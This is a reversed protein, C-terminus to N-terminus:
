YDLQGDSLKAGGQEQALTLRKQHDSLGCCSLESSVGFYSSYMLLIALNYVLVVM